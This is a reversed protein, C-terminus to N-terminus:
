IINNGANKSEESSVIVDILKTDTGIALMRDIPSGPEGDIRSRDLPTTDALFGFFTLALGFFLLLFNSCNYITLQLYKSSFGNTEDVIRVKGSREM